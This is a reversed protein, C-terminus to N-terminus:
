AVRRTVVEDEDTETTSEDYSPNQKGVFALLYDVAKGAQTAADFIFKPALPTGKENTDKSTMGQLWSKVYGKSHETMESALPVGLEMMLFCAGIEAVLEGFAYKHGEKQGVREKKETWHVLEHFTTEYYHAINDFSVKPPLQIRDESPRYFARTGGWSINAGSAKILEEAPGFDPDDHREVVKVRYGDLKAQIGDHVLQALEERTQKGKPVLAKPVFQDVLARLEAVTTVKTRAETNSPDLLIRVLSGFKGARCRGDLLASVEPAQVQDANFIAFETLLPFKLENGKSDKLISGDTDRRTLWKFLVVHSSKQGKTVHAGIHKLWANYTGWNASSFGNCMAAWILIVPNIGSYRRKSQFNRPMGVNGGLSWPQRWPPTNEQLAKVFTQTIQERIEQQTKAM